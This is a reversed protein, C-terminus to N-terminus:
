PEVYEVLRQMQPQTSRQALPAIAPQGPPLQPKPQLVKLGEILAVRVLPETERTLMVRFCDVLHSRVTVQTGPLYSATGRADDLSWRLLARVAILRKLADTASLNQWQVALTDTSGPESEPPQSGGPSAQGTQLLWWSNLVVGAMVIVVAWGSGWESWLTALGYMSGFALLGAGLPHQSLRHLHAWTTESVSILADWRIAEGTAVLHYALGSVAIALLLKGDVLAALWTVLGWRGYRHLWRANHQYIEITAARIHEGLQRAM